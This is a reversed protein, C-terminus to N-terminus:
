KAVAANPFERVKLDHPWENWDGGESDKLTKWTTWDPHRHHEGITCHPKEGLQKVFCAVGAAQCQKITSRAWEINFPRAGPGSEGGVIVWDIGFEGREGFGDDGESPSEGALYGTLANFSCHAWSEPILVRDFELPGLLPEASVFLVAAINRCGVLHYVANVHPQLSVSAGLWVNERYLEPQEDWHHLDPPEVQRNEPVKPWMKRINEPRKTLLQWDLWPTSDILAFLRRRVDNLTAPQRDTLFFQGSQCSMFVGDVEYLKNGHSDLLPGTWDEFVDALSACFVRARVGAKEAQRNWKLPEKWMSEAAVIRTGNPGWVGLRDPFRKADREAYCHACGEHVKTCGRWPNFTHDTWQIKTESGMM